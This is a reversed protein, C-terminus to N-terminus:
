HQVRYHLHTVGAEGECIRTRELEIHEPGLNCRDFRIPCPQCGAGFGNSLASRGADTASLILARNHGDFTVHLRAAFASDCCTGSSPANVSGSDALIHLYVDGQPLEAFARCVAAPPAV